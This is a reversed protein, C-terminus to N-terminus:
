QNSDTSQGEQMREILQDIKDARARGGSGTRSKPDEPDERKSIADKIKDIIGKEEKKDKDSM